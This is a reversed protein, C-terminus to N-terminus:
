PIKLIVFFDLISNQNQFGCFASTYPLTSLIEVEEKEKKGEVALSSCTSLLIFIVHIIKAVHHLVWGLVYIDAPANMSVWEDLELDDDPLRGAVNWTGITVRNFFPNDTLFVQAENVLSACVLDFQKLDFRVDKTNIYQLRLTESKGRRHRLKQGKWPTGLCFLNQSKFSWNDNQHCILIKRKWNLQDCFVITNLIAAELAILLPKQKLIFSLSLCNYFFWCCRDLM